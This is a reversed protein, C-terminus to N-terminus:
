FNIRVNLKYQKDVTGSRTIKEQKVDFDFLHADVYADILNIVYVITFYWVFDNRQNFYFERFAKLNENGAPNETTQTASYQDRYDRYKKDNDYFEYSFYGVLGLLIPVKWYSKNYFQGAGPLLASLGVALWPSKKMRFKKFTPKGLSTDSKLSDLQYTLASVPQNYNKLMPNHSERTRPFPDTQGFCFPVSVFFIFTGIFFNKIQAHV